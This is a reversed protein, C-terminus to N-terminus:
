IFIEKYFGKEHDFVSSPNKQSYYQM